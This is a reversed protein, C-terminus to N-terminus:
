QTSYVDVYIVIHRHAILTHRTVSTRQTFPQIYAIPTRARYDGSQGKQRRHVISLRIATREGREARGRARTERPALNLSRDRAPPAPPRARGRGGAGGVARGPGAAPKCYIYVRFICVATFYKNGGCECVATFAWARPTSHKRTPTCTDSLKM